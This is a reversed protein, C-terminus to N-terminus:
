CHGAAPAPTRPAASKPIAYVRKFSTAMLGVMSSGSSVCSQSISDQLASVSGHTFWSGPSPLVSGVLCQGLSAQSHRPTELPPMPQHHGAAPNPCLTCCHMCPVKIKGHPTVMIKMEEVMTLGLYIAPLFCLEM